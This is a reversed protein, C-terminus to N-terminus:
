IQYKMSVKENKAQKGDRGLQSYVRFSSKYTTKKKQDRNPYAWNQMTMVCFKSGCTISQDKGFTDKGYSSVHKVDVSKQCYEQRNKEIIRYM